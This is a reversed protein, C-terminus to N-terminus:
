SYLFSTSYFKSSLIKAVEDLPRGFHQILSEYSIEKQTQKDKELRNHICTESVIHITADDNEAGLIIGKNKMQFTDEWLMLKHAPTDSMTTEEEVEPQPLSIRTQLSSGAATTKAHGIDEVPEDVTFGGFFCFDLKWKPRTCIFILKM